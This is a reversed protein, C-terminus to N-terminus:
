TAHPHPFARDSSNVVLSYDPIVLMEKKTEMKVVIKLPAEWKGPLAMFGSTLARFIYLIPLVTQSASCQIADIKIAASSQVM